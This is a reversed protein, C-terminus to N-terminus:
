TAGAGRREGLTAGRAGRGTACEVSGGAPRASRADPTVPRLRVSRSAPRLRCRGPSVVACCAGDFFRAGGPGGGKGGLVSARMNRAIGFGQGGGAVLGSSEGGDRRGGVGGRTPGSGSSRRKPWLGVLGRM